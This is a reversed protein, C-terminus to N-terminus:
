IQRAAARMNQHVEDTRQTTSGRFESALRNMERTLEEFEPTCKRGVEEFGETLRGFAAVMEERARVLTQVGEHRSVGDRTMHRVNILADRCDAVDLRFRNATLRWVRLREDADMSEQKPRLKETLRGANKLM